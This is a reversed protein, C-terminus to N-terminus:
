TRLCAYVLTSLGRGLSHSGVLMLWGGDGTLRCLRM